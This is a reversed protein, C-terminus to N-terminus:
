IHNKLFSSNLTYHLFYTTNKIIMYYKIIIHHPNSVYQKKIVCFNHLFTIHSRSIHNNFEEANYTIHTQCISVCNDDNCESM